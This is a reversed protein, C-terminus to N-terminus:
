TDSCSLKKSISNQYRNVHTYSVFIYIWPLVAVILGDEYEEENDYKVVELMKLGAGDLVKEWQATTREIGGPYNGFWCDRTGFRICAYFRHAVAYERHVAELVFYSPLTRDLSQSSFSIVYRRLNAYRYWTPSGQACCTARTPSTRRYSGRIRRDHRSQRQSFYWRM